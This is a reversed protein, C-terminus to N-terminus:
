HASITVGGQITARLGGMFSTGLTQTSALPNYVGLSPDNSLALTQTIGSTYIDTEPLTLAVATKGGANTGVDVKMTGSLLIWMYNNLTSNGNDGLAMQMNKAGFYGASGYGTFGDSDGWSQVVPNAPIAILLGSKGSFGPILSAVAGLGGGFAIEVGQTGNSHSSITLTGGTAGFAALSSNANVIMAFQDNFFSGLVQPTADLTKTTALLVQYNTFVPAVFVQPLGVQVATQGSGNTGVDITMPGGVGVLIGTNPYVSINNLGVFGASNYSTFGSGNGWSQVDPDSANVTLGFTYGAGLTAPPSFAGFDITVGEQATLSGLEADSVSEMAFSAFAVMVLFMSVVACVLTKKM